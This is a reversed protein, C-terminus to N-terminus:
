PNVLFSKSDSDITLNSTKVFFEITGKTVHAYFHGSSTIGFFIKGKLPTVWLLSISLILHTMSYCWVLLVKIIYWWLGILLERLNFHKPNKVRWMFVMMDSANILKLKNSNVYSICLGSSIMCLDSRLLSPERVHSSKRLATWIHNFLIWTNSM